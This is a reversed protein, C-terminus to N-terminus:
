ETTENPIATHQNAAWQGVLGTPSVSIRDAGRCRVIKAKSAWDSPVVTSNTQAEIALAIPIFDVDSPIIFDAAGDIDQRDRALRVTGGTDFRRQAMHRAERRAENIVSQAPSRTLSGFFKDFGFM